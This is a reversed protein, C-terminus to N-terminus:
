SGVGRGGKSSLAKNKSKKGLTRALDKRGCESEEVSERVWRVSVGPM